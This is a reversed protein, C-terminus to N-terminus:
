QLISGFPRKGLPVTCAYCAFIDSETRHGLHRMKMEMSNLLESNRIRFESIRLVFKPFSNRFESNHHSRLTPLDYCNIEKM